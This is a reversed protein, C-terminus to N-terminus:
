KQKFFQIADKLNMIRGDPWEIYPVSKFGKSRMLDVDTCPEYEVKNANLLNVMQRCAPCGTTYLIVKSM